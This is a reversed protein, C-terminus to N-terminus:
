ERPTSTLGVFVTLVAAYATTAALTRETGTRFLGALLLTFLVVAITTTDLNMAQSQHLAMIYMPVLIFLSVAVAVVARALRDTMPSEMPAYGGYYLDPKAQREARTWTLATPLYRRMTQSIAELLPEDIPAPAPEKAHLRRYNEIAFADVAPDFSRATRPFFRSSQRRREAQESVSLCDLSKIM